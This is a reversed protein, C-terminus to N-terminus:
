LLVFPKDRIVIEKRFYIYKPKQNDVKLISESIVKEKSDKIQISYNGKGLKLNLRKTKYHENGYKLKKIRESDIILSDNILIKYYNDSTYQFELYVNPSNEPPNKFVFYFIFIVAISSVAAILTVYHKPTHNRKMQMTKQAKLTLNIAAAVLQSLNLM